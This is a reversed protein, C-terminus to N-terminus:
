RDGCERRRWGTCQSLQAVHASHVGDDQAAVCGSRPEDQAQGHVRPVSCCARRSCSQRSVSSSGQPQDANAALRTKDQVRELVLDDAKSDDGRRQAPLICAQRAATGQPRGDGRVEERRLRRLRGDQPDAEQGVTGTAPGCAATGAVVHAM